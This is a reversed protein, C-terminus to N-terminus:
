IEAGWAKKVPPKNDLNWTNTMMLEFYDDNDISCSINQYYEIFEELTVSRDRSKTNGNRIAYSEEFTDLFEFLVEEETTKGSMVDPHKKANYRGKIDNIDLVGSGDKDIVKFARVVLQRRKKNMEGMVGRLFEDYNIAGSRDPDFTEFIAKIELPDQSIRYSKLAKAFEDNDLSKSNDDDMIKFSKGIGIIGRAGRAKIRERV